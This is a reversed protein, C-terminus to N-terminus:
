VDLLYVIVSSAYFVFIVLIIPIFNTMYFNKVLVSVLFVSSLEQTFLVQFLDYSFTLPVQMCM